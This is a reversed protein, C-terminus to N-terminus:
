LNPAMVLIKLQRMIFFIFFLLIQTVVHHVTSWLSSAQCRDLRIYCYFYTSQSCLFFLISLPVTLIYGSKIYTVKNYFYCPPSCKSLFWLSFISGNEKRIDGITNINYICLIWDRDRDKSDKGTRILTFMYIM